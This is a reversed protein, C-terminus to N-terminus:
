RAGRPIDFHVNASNIAYAYRVGSLTKVYALLEASSIGEVCLDCAEGYMHQSNAVGGSDGNHRPCRIGSIVHAPKGFHGRVQDAIRVMAEKPEAPFGNCYPPHYQGCKCGFEERDFFRIEDWFTGTDPICIDEGAKEEPINRAVACCLAAQTQEGPIGDEKLGASKQFALVGNRTQKGFIGDVDRAPLYGLYALLLQVKETTM